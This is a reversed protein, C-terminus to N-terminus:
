EALGACILLKHVLIGEQTVKWSSDESMISHNKDHFVLGRRQLGQLYMMFRGDSIMGERDKNIVWVLMKIQGKSLTLNFAQNTVYESFQNM